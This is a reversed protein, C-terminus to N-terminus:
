SWKKIYLNIEVYDRKIEKEGERERERIIIVPPRLDYNLQKKIQLSIQEFAQQPVCAMREATISSILTEHRIM